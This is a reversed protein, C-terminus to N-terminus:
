QNHDLLEQIPHHELYRDIIALARGDVEINGSENRQYDKFVIAIETWKSDWDNIRWAGNEYVVSMPYKTVRTGDYNLYDPHDITVLVVGELPTKPTFEFTIKARGGDLRSGEMDSYWYLMCDAGEPKWGCTDLEWECLRVVEKLLCYFDSSFATSDAESLKKHDPIQRFAWECWERAPPAPEQGYAIKEKKKLDEAVWLVWEDVNDTLETPYPLDLRVDPAIGTKDIGRDPLRHSVTMPITITMTSYPLNVSRYNSIDLCGYTNERGYVTTRKSAARIELVMEEGSSIVNNDIILAAALPFESCSHFRIEQDEMLPWMVREQKKNRFLSLYAEGVFSLRDKLFRYNKKTYFFDCGDIVAPTDYLLRLYPQFYKDQGGNNGRIDLILYKCGSDEYDKVSQDVWTLDPDGWCSPFRILYTDDDVKCSVKQPSYTFLSPYDVAQKWLHKQESWNNRLHRQQFWALYHGVAEYDLYVGANVSDRVAAKMIDYEALEMDTLLPFGAYNYEVEAIAFDLDDKFTEESEPVNSTCSLLACFVFPILSLGSLKM